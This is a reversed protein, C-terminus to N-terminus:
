GRAGIMTRMSMATMRLMGVMRMRVTPMGVEVETKTTTATTVVLRTAPVVGAVVVIVRSLDVPMAIVVM